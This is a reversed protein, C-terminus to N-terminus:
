FRVLVLSADPAYHRYMMGPALPKTNEDVKKYNEIGAITEDVDIHGIVKEIDERSIHGPRLLTPVERTMDIITSEVGINVTDDEIIMDIRGNLDEYVYSGKTPSPKGSTNASPAAIYLGSSLLMKATKHAPMRVAVTGLGGTTELPVCSKKKLVM